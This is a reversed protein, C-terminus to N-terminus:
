LSLTYPNGESGDGSIIKVESDLYLVPYAVVLSNDAFCNNVIGLSNIRFLQFDGNSFPTLTWQSGGTYLWDNNKCDSVNSDDWKYLAM